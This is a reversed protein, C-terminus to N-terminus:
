SKRTRARRRRGDGGETPKKPNREFYKKTHDGEKITTPKQDTKNKSRIIEMPKGEM